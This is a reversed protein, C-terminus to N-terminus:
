EVVFDNLSNYEFYVKNPFKASLDVKDHSVFVGRSFLDNYIIAINDWGHKKKYKKYLDEHDKLQLLDMFLYEYGKQEYKFDVHYTENYLNDLKEFLKGGIYNEMIDNVKDRTDADLDYDLNVIDPGGWSDQSYFGVKKNNYYINGQMLEEGEHGRFKKINKLEIGKIKAM